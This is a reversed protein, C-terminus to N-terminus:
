VGRALALQYAELTKDAAAEWTFERAIRNALSASPGKSMAAAIACRISDPDDPACYHAEDGLYERTCGGPTAVVACGCLAAELNALGPTEYWSVCAHVKASRYLTCLEAPPRFGTLCVNADAEQICRRAYRRSHRGSEGVLTLPIESGRLARILLLQNKRPEIRGVCLVGERYQPRPDPMPRFVDLDAANPVVTVMPRARFAGEIQEQEARSNPLLVSVTSLVFEASRHFSVTPGGYRLPDPRMACHFLWQQAIRVSSYAESGFTRAFVAQVGFRGLRDYEDSRWYIPSLVAPRNQARIRRCHCENEWLRDLHFLHVLDYGSFDPRPEGSLHIRVGRRRLIEATSLIQVTDGGAQRILDERVPWLVRM